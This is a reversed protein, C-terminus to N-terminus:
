PLSPLPFQLLIIKKVKIKRCLTRLRHPKHILILFNYKRLEIAYQLGLRTPNNQWTYLKHFVPEHAGMLWVTNYPIGEPLIRRIIVLQLVDTEIRLTKQREIPITPCFPRLTRRLLRLLKKKM